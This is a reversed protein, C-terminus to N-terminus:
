IYEVSPSRPNSLYRYYRKRMGAHEECGACRYRYDGMEYLGPKDCGAVFCKDKGTYGDRMQEDKLWEEYKLKM